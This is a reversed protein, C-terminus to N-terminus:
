RDARRRNNEFRSPSADTPPHYDPRPRIIRNDGSQLTEDGIRLVHREIIEFVYFRCSTYNIRRPM